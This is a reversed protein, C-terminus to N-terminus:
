SHIAEKRMKEIGIEILRRIASYADNIIEYGNITLIKNDKVKGVSIINAGKILKLDFDGGEFYDFNIRLNVDSAIDSIADIVNRIFIFREFLTGISNITLLLYNDTEEEKSEDYNIIYDIIKNIGTEINNITEFKLRDVYYIKDYFLIAIQRSDDGDEINAFAYIKKSEISSVILSLMIIKDNAKILYQFQDEIKNRGIIPYNKEIINIISVFIESNVYLFKKSSVGISKEKVFKSISFL